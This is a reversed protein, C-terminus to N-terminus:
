TALINVIYRLLQLPTGVDPSSKHELLIYAFAPENTKLQLRFLLDSHHLAFREDVFSGPVLEPPGPALLEVVEPPLHEQLFRGALEPKSMFSKFFADHLQTPPTSM